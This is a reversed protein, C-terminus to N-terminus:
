LVIKKKQKKKSLPKRFAEESLLYCNKNSNVDTSTCNRQIENVFTYNKCLSKQTQFLSFIKKTVSPFM